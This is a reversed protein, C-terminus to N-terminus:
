SSEQCARVVEEVLAEPVEVGLRARGIGEPLTCRIRWGRRKKDLRMAEMVQAVPVSPVATPLGLRRLLADQRAAAGPDLVGLRVAIAAEVRMGVAIAEGHVLAGACATELAHGVTHGYNLVERPGQEREDEAVVRAKLSVCRFVIEELAAGGARAPSAGRAALTPGDQELREILGADLTMGYKVVEALGARRERAPLSALTAVDAVVLAPQHFVGVLNKARPHNVAAKGGISSDIQALLTTPVHVLRVGRMYVGAVFGGLDGVVGGGLTAVTDSRDLAAAALADVLAEARRLSKAREGPPVPLVHVRFGWGELARAVDGYRRALAPHTILAVRGGAGLRYLDAGVLARAGAGVLVRYAREGVEVRVERRAAGLREFIDAVVADPPRAADVPVGTEMYLPERERLLRELAGAPDDGLLPRGANAGVRAALVPAPARLYFVPGAARLAARASASLVTGGGTAVVRNAGRVARAAERRELERFYGEGRERFIAAIPRGERAEIAADIDVFEWGLRRALARGVESKGAGMLGVLSVVRMATARPVSM